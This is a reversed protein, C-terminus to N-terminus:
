IHFAIETNGQADAPGEFQAGPVQWASAGTAAEFGGQVHPAASAGYWLYVNGGKAAAASGKLSVSCYGRRLVDALGTQPPMGAGFPVVGAPFAVTLDAGPYPRVLIGLLNIAPASADAVAIPRIGNADVVVLVGYAQPPSATNIKEAKITAGYTQLRTVEGPVGAPMRFTYAVM